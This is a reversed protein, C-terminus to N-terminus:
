LSCLDEQLQTPAARIRHSEPGLQGGPKPAPTAGRHHPQEGRCVGGGGGAAEDEQAAAGEAGRQGPGAEYLLDSDRLGEDQGKRAKEWIGGHPPAKSVWGGAGCRDERCPFKAQEERSPPPKHQM